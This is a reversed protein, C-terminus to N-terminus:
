AVIQTYDKHHQWLIMQIRRSQTQATEEKEKEYAIPTGPNTYNDKRSRDAETQIKTTNKEM